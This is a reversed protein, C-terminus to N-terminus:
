SVDSKSRELDNLFEDLTDNVRRMIIDLSLYMNVHCVRFLEGRRFYVSIENILEDFNFQVDVGNEKCRERILDFMNGNM